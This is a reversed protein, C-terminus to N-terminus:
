VLDSTPLTLHTYSVAKNIDVNKIEEINSNTAGLHFSFNSLSRQSALAFKNDLNELTTTAPNVNPMEFYSTVGGALGAFSESAIDGKHTLGPERFHVQDDILGPMVYRGNVDIVEKSESQIDASILEIRDNKIAIDSEFISDENIINCNKLILDYM